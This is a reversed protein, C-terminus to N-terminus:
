SPERRWARGEKGAVTARWVVLMVGVWALGLFTAAVANTGILALVVGVIGLIIVYVSFGRASRLHAVGAPGYRNLERAARPEVTAQRLVLRGCLVREWRSLPALPDAEDPMTAM